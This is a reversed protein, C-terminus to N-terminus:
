FIISDCDAAVKDFVNLKNKNNEMHGNTKFDELEDKKSKFLNMLKSGGHTDKKM